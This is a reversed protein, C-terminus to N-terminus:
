IKDDNRLKIWNFWDNLQVCLENHGEPRLSSFIQFSTNELKADELQKKVSALTKHIENKSLKDAKTMVLRCPIHTRQCWQIMQWDTDKLPHRIDMIIVLGKLCQRGSFYADILRGWHERLERTVDAHGYGPLDVLRRDDKVQFFVIQQTRGPTKSTRALSKQGAVTNIVSSKGANSRGVVAVEYGWDAPFQEPLHAALLFQAGRLTDCPKNKASM